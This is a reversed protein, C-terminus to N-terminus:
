QSIFTLEKVVFPDLLSRTRRLLSTTSLRASTSWHVRVRPGDLTQQDSQTWSDDRRIDYVHNLPTSPSPQEDSLLGQEDCVFLGCAIWAPNKATTAAVIAM